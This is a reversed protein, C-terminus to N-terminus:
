GETLTITYDIRAGVINNPNVLLVNLFSGAKFRYQEYTNAGDEDGTMLAILDEKTWTHVTSSNATLELGEEGLWWGQNSNGPGRGAIYFSCTGGLVMADLREVTCDVPLPINRYVDSTDTTLLTGTLIIKNGLM